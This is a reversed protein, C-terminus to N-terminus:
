WGGGDKAEPDLKGAREFMVDDEEGMLGARGAGKRCIEREVGERGGLKPERNGRKYKSRRSM